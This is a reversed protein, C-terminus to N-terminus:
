RRRRKVRATSQWAVRVHRWRVVGHRANHMAAARLRGREKNVLLGTFLRAGSSKQTHQM